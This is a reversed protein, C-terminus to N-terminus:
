KVILFEPYNFMFKSAESRIRKLPNNLLIKLYDILQGRAMEYQVMPIMIHYNVGIDTNIKWIQLNIVNSSYILEMTNANTNESVDSVGNIKTSNNM